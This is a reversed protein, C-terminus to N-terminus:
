CLWTTMHYRCLITSICDLLLVSNLRLESTIWSSSSSCSSSKSVKCSKISAISRDNHFLFFTMKSGFSCCQSFLFKSVKWIIDCSLRLIELACIQVVTGPLLLYQCLLL